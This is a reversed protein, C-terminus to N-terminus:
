SSHVRRGAALLSLAGLAASQADPARDHLKKYVRALLSSVTGPRVGLVEAAEDYSLGDARLRLCELERPSLVAAIRSAIQGNSVAEEPSDSPDPVDVGHEPGVGRKFWATDLMDPLYNRLVRYLWARPHAIVRGYSREVFYRLFVEQIADRAADRNRIMCTAYALLETAYRDHLTAVEPEIEM